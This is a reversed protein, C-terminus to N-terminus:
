GPPGPMGSVTIGPVGPVGPVGGVTMPPLEPEGPARGEAEPPSRRAPVECRTALRAGAAAHRRCVAAPRFTDRRLGSEVLERAGAARDSCLRGERDCNARTHRDGGAGVDVSRQGAHFPVTELDM